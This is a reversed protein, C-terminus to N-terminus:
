VRVVRHWLRIYFWSSESNGWGKRECRHMTPVHPVVPLAPANDAIMVAFRALTSKFVKVHKKM